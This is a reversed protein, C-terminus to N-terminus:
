RLSKEGSVVRNGISMATLLAGATHPGRYVACTGMPLSFAASRRGGAAPCSLISVPAPPIGPRPRSPARDATQRQRLRSLASTRITTRLEGCEPRIDIRIAEDCTRSARRPLTQPSGLVREHIPQHQAGDSASSREAKAPASGVLTERRSGRAKRARGASTRLGTATTRWCGTPRPHCAPEPRDRAHDALRLFDVRFQQATSSAIRLSRRREVGGRDRRRQSRSISRPVVYGHSARQEDIAM